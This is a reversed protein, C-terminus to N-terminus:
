LPFHETKSPLSLCVNTLAQLAHMRRQTEVTEWDFIYVLRCWSHRRVQGQGDDNINVVPLLERSPTDSAVVPLASVDLRSHAASVQSDSEDNNASTTPGCGDHRLCSTVNVNVPEEADGCENSGVLNNSSISGTTTTTSQHNEGRQLSPTCGM